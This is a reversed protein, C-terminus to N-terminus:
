VLWYQCSKTFTYSPSTVNRLACPAALLSTTASKATAGATKGRKKGCMVSAVKVGQQGLSDGDDVLRVFQASARDARM